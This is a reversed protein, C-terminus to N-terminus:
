IARIDPRSIGGPLTVHVKMERRLRSEVQRVMRPWLQKGQEFFFPRPKVGDRLIKMAIPWAAGYDEAFQNVKSGLRRRTKVSYTGTIGKRRVWRVIARMFARFDGGKYGKFQSAIAETGPIARFHKKTGFEMFPSYLAQSVIEVSYPGNPYFSILRRLQGEDVPADRQAAAVWQQAMDIIEEKVISTVKETAAAFEAKMGNFGTVRVKFM